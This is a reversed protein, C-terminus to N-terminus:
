HNRNTSMRKETRKNRDDTAKSWLLILCDVVIPLEERADKSRDFAHNPFLVFLFGDICKSEEIIQNLHNENQNNRRICELRDWIQLVVNRQHYLEHHFKGLRTIELHLNAVFSDFDEFPKGLLGNMM